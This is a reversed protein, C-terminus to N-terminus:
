GNRYAQGLNFQSQLDGAEAARRGYNMSRDLDRAVGDGRSYMLALNALSPAYNAEAAKSFLEVARALDRDVGHGQYYLSALLHLGAPEGREAAASFERVATAYDGQRYASIGADIAPRATVSMFVGAAVVIVRKM